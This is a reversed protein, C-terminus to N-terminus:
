KFLLGQLYGCTYYIITLKPDGRRSKGPDSHNGEGEKERNPGQFFELNNNLYQFVKKQWQTFQLTINIFFCLTLLLVEYNLPVTSRSTKRSFYELNSGPM